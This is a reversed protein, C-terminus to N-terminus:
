RAAGKRAAEGEETEASSGRERLAKGGQALIGRSEGSNSGADLQREGSIMTRM